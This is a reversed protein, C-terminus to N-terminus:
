FITVSRLMEFDSWTMSNTEEYVGNGDADIEIMVTDTPQGGADTSVRVHTNNAGTYVISGRSPYPNADNGQILSETAVNVVGNILSSEFTYNWSITYDLTSTDYTGTSHFDYINIYDANFTVNFNSYTVTITEVTGSLSGSISMAANVAASDVGDTLTLNNFNVTATYTSNANGTISFSISGNITFGGELCDSFTVTGSTSGPDPMTVSGGGSCTTVALPQLGQNYGLHLLKRTFDTLNLASQSPQTVSLPTISNLGTSISDATGAVSAVQAGNASNISVSPSPGAGGGGGSGGGGCASISLFLSILVSYKFKM